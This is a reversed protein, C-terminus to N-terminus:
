HLSIFSFWGLFLYFLVIPYVALIKKDKGILAAM